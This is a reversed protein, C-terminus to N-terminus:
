RPSPTLVARARQANRVYSLVLSGGPPLQWAERQLDAADSLPTSGAHTLVDGPRLGAREAPSGPDIRTVVLGAGVLPRVSLGLQPPEARSGPGREGLLRAVAGLVVDIPTALSVGQHTGGRSLIATMVGVVRGDADLLPGGSSGLNAAADTQIFSEFGRPNVGLGSRGVGSVLGLSWSNPLAFPSGAALVLDGARLARPDGMPLPLRDSLAAVRLLATDTADDAGVLEAVHPGSGPATVLIERAGALVHRSTVVYGGPRVVFGGGVGDDRSSRRAGDEQRIAVHVVSPNARAAVNAFTAPLERATAPPPATVRGAFVGAIVLVAAGVAAGVRGSGAPATM